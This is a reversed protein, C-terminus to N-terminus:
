RNEDYPCCLSIQDGISQCSIPVRSHIFWVECAVVVYLSSSLAQDRPLRAQRWVIHKPTRSLSGSDPIDTYPKSHDDFDVSADFACQCEVVFQDHRSLLWCRYLAYSPRRIARAALGFCFQDASHSPHLLLDHDRLHRMISWHVKCSPDGCISTGICNLSVAM